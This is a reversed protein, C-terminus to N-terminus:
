GASPGRLKRPAPSSSGIRIASSLSRREDRETTGPAFLRLEYLWDHVLTRGKGGADCSGDGPEGLDSRFAQGSVPRSVARGRPPGRSSSSAFFLEGKAVCEIHMRTLV